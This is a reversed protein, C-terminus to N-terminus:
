ATASQIQSTLAAKLQTLLSDTVEDVKLRVLPKKYLGRPPIWVDASGANQVTSKEVSLYLTGDVVEGFAFTQWEDFDWLCVYPKHLSLTIRKGCLRSLKRACTEILRVCNQSPDQESLFGLLMPPVAVPHEEGSSVDPTVERQPSVAAAPIVPSADAVPAAIRATMEIDPLRVSKAAPQEKLVDAGSLQAELMNTIQKLRARLLPAERTFSVLRMYEDYPLESLVKKGQHDCLFQVNINM